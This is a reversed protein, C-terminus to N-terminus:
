MLLLALMAVVLAATSTALAGGVHHQFRKAGSVIQVVGNTAVQGAAPASSPMVVYVITGSTITTYPQQTAYGYYYSTPDPPDPPAVDDNEPVCTVVPTCATLCTCTSECGTNYPCDDVFDCTTVVACASTTTTTCRPQPQCGACNTTTTFETTTTWVPISTTTCLVTTIVTV